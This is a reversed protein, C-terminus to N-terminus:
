ALEMTIRLFPPIQYLSLISGRKFLNVPVKTKLHQVVAKRQVSIFHTMVAGKIGVTSMRRVSVIFSLEQQVM